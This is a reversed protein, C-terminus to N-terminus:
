SAASGGAGETLRAVTALLQDLEVPKPLVLVGSPASSPRSTAVVVPIQALAPDCRMAEFVRAGDLVPMVLDLIVVSPLPAGSTILDLAEQGNSATDVVYGADEFAERLVARIDSDDDVILVKAADSAGRANETAAMRPLRVDFVTGADRTSTVSITGGHARVIQQSIFLGLGLGHSTHSPRAGRFPDFIRPLLDAPILGQNRVSVTIEGDNGESGVTISVPTGATGHHLANSVLNSFVQLLRTADGATTSDGTATVSVPRDGAVGRLEDVARHVLEAISLPRRARLFGLGNALRARTLDLLQDIMDRMREASSVMRRLIRRQPDDPLQREPLQRELLQAGTLISGLPNRLDHGLIGVFIENMRLHSALEIKQRYLEFFVDTKSKLAHPDVPKFLFDVAGAEYGKFVRQPDRAGATLFIIPVHRTREMGRMLEALEFGNMEPMQVDLIALAVDHVLLLELAEAGSRAMLLELGDRRLLAELVLLNEAIDDVLLFKISPQDGTLDHSM